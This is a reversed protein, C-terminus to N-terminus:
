CYCVHVSKAGKRVGHCFGSKNSLIVDYASLDLGGFALPYLPLYPQHYRYIGPLKDMWLTHIPWKQWARPMGDRWYISTYIPAHPFLDVLEQLVDEAGGIQNLWDHVLALRITSNIHMPRSNYGLDPQSILVSFSGKLSVGISFVIEPNSSTPRPGKAPGITAAATTKAASTLM